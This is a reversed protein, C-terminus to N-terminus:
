RIPQINRRLLKNLLFLERQEMKDARTNADGSLAIGMFAAKYIARLKLEDWKDDQQVTEHRSLNLGLISTIDAVRNMHGPHTIVAINNEESVPLLGLRMCNTFNTVTSYSSEELGAINAGYGYSTLRDAMFSALSPRDDEGEAEGQAAGVFGGSIVFRTDPNCALMSLAVQVREASAKSISWEGDPNKYSNGALLLVESM